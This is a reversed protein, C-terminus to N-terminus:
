APAHKWGRGVPRPRKNSGRKQPTHATMSEAHSWSATAEQNTQPVEPSVDAGYSEEGMGEDEGERRGIFRGEVRLLVTGCSNLLRHVMPM